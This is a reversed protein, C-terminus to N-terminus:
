TPHHEHDTELTPPSASGCRCRPPTSCASETTRTVAAASRPSGGSSTTPTSAAGTPPPIRGGLWYPFVLRDRFFDEVGTRTRVFLGTQLALEEAVGVKGTLYDWLHGDAWGLQLEDVTTETFGYHERYWKQRIRAPLAHHYYGAAQTLV